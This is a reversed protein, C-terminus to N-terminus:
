LVCAEKGHSCARLGQRWSAVLMQTRELGTEMIDYYKDDVSLVEYGRTFHHKNYQCIHGHNGNQNIM